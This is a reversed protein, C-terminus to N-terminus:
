NTTNYRSLPSKSRVVAKFDGAPNPFDELLTTEDSSVSCGHEFKFKAFKYKINALSFGTKAIMDLGMITNTAKSIPDIVVLGAGSAGFQAVIAANVVTQQAVFTAVIGTLGDILGIIESVMKMMSDGKVLPQQPISKGNADLGNGAVLDIGFTKIMKHGQSSVNEPFKSGAGMTVIKIGERSVIRVGDAKIAVASRPQKSQEKEEEDQLRIKLADDIRCKQSLYIRAADMAVSEIEKKLGVDNLRYREIRPDVVSNFLPDISLFEREGQAFLSEGSDLTWPSKPAARGVVIDIAGARKYKGFGGSVGGTRDRGFVICANNDIGKATTASIIGDGDRALYKPVKEKLADPGLGSKDKDYEEELM